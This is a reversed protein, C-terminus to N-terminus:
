LLWEELSLEDRNRKEKAVKSDLLVPGSSVGHDYYEKLSNMELFSCRSAPLLINHPSISFSLSLTM